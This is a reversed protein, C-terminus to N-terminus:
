SPEAVVVDDDGRGRKSENGRCMSAVIAILVRTRRCRLMWWRWWWVRDDGGQRWLAIWCTERELEKEETEERRRWGRSSPRSERDIKIRRREVLRCTSTCKPVKDVFQRAQSCNTDDFKKGLAKLMNRAIQRIYWAFQASIRSVFLVTSFHCWRALKKKKLYASSANSATHVFATYQLIKLPNITFLHLYAISKVLILM